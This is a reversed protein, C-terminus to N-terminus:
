NPGGTLAQICRDLRAFRTCQKTVNPFGHENVNKSQRNADISLLLSGIARALLQAATRVYVPWPM